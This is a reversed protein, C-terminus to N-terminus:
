EHLIHTQRCTYPTIRPLEEKYTRNYKELAHEFRKEWHLALYPMHNKDFVLFGSIDDIM